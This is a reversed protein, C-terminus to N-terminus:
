LEVAQFRTYALEMTEIVINSADADLDGFSWKVPFAKHFLWGTAPKNEDNYVTVLVSAPSFKFLSFVDNFSTQLTSKIVIGYDARTPIRYKYLNEGGETISDMTMDARLGSVKKFRVDVMNPKVGNEYFFVGFRYGLILDPDKLIM